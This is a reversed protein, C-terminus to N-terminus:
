HTIRELHAHDPKHEILEWTGTTIDINNCLRSYAGRGTTHETDILFRGYWENIENELQIALGVADNGTGKTV